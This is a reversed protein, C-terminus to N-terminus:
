KSSVSEHLKLLSVLGPDKTASEVFEKKSIKQDANKDM